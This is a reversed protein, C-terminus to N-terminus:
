SQKGEKAANSWDEVLKQSDTFRDKIGHVNIKIAMAYGAKTLREVQAQLERNPTVSLDYFEKLWEVEAKLSDCEVALVSNEAQRAQCEAKLRAYDEYRVYEGNSHEILDFDNEENVKFSYRKPESM